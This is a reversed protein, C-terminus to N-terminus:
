THKAKKQNKSDMHTVVDRLDRIIKLNKEHRDNLNAIESNAKKNLEELSAIKENLTEYQKKIQATKNSEEQLKNKASIKFIDFEDNIKKIDEEYCNIQHNLKSTKANQTNLLQTLNKVEDKKENLLINVEDLKKKSITDKQRTEKITNIVNKKFKRKENEEQTILFRISIFEKIKGSINDFIPHITTDTFYTEKNKSLNKIKGRWTEGKKITQWLEKFIEKSVDPHRVINHPKNILEEKTYGSIECFIDNTYTIKGKLDTKSVIAVRNLINVYEEIERNKHIINIKDIIRQGIKDLKTILSKLDLPKILYNSVNLEIAKIIHKSDSHATLYIVEGEFKGITRIKELMDLGNLKPMNIDSIIINIQPNKDLIALAELGNNALHLGNTKELFFESLIQRVTDDDEVILINLVKLKEVISITGEGM